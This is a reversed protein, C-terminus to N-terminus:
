PSLAREWERLRGSAQSMIQAAVQNPNYGAPLRVLPKGSADCFDKVDGYSHSSWRIALLVAVVDPRAVFPAFSEVSEHARTEIWFLEKLGLSEQLAQHAGRRREGGILVLSKGRLLEAAAVVEPSQRVVAPKEPPPCTALYRDIEALVRGFEAPVSERDPLLDVIPLLYDRLERHSAPLGGAVLEVVTALLLDWEEGAREPDNGILSAKHRVKGLLRKRQSGRRKADQVRQAVAEIRSVIDSAQRPDAPDDRRMYNRIFIQEDTATTRLWHFADNQDTDVAPGEIDGVAVRLASQAEALLDLAAEFDARDAEAFDQIQRVLAVGEAVAEYCSALQEYLSLETPSPGSSHCMWLFCNPLERARGIIDRDRPDVETHFSAGEALLRRRTAAWRSGEAKLRCRAEILSLDAGVARPAPYSPREPEVAVSRGLTLEPLPERVLPRADAPAAAAAASAQLDAAPLPPVESPQPSEAAVSRPAAPAATTDVIGQILQRLQGRLEADQSVLGILRHVVAQALEALDLQM